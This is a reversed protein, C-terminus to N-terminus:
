YSFNFENTVKPIRFLISLISFSFNLVSPFTIYVYLGRCRVADNRDLYDYNGNVEM